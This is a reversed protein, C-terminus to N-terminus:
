KFGSGALQQNQPQEDELICNEKPTEAGKGWELILPTIVSLITLSCVIVNFFGGKCFEVELNNMSQSFKILPQRMFTAM